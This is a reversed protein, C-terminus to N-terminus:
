QSLDATHGLDYQIVETSGLVGKILYTYIFLIFKLKSIEEPSSTHHKADTNETSCTLLEHFISHLYFNKILLSTRIKANNTLSKLDSFNYIASLVGRKSM